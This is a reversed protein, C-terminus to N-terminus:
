SQSNKIERAQDRLNIFKEFRKSPYQGPLLMRIADENMLFFRAVNLDKNPCARMGNRLHDIIHLMTAPSKLSRNSRIILERQRIASLIFSKTKFHFKRKSLENELWADYGMDILELRQKTRAVQTDISKM